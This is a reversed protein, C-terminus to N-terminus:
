PNKRKHHFYIRCVIKNKKCFEEIKKEEKDWYNGKGLWIEKYKDVLEPNNKKLFRIINDQVSFYPNLNEFWYENTFNKTRKIIKQWDTIAPFIPSIFLATEIGAKHLKELVLIRRESSVTLPKLQKRFREDLFSLSVAVLCKKFQKLLDIDRIVLDSKTLIDLDPQLPILKELIKRTLKYRIEIPHYPDTVSSMLISKGKYKDAKEPILDPANIKVDVFHGWNEKHGTYTKMFRAYCYVCGHMCGIYPNIVFETDPLGSKVIISKAKIERIKM